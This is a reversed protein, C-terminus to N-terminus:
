AVHLTVVLKVLVSSTKSKLPKWHFAMFKGAKLWTAILKGLGLHGAYACAEHSIGEQMCGDGASSRIFTCRLLLSGLFHLGVFQAVM